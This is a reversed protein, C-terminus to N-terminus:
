RHGGSHLQRHRHAAGRRQGRPFSVPPGPHPLGGPGATRKGSPPSPRSRAGLGYDTDNAQAAIEDLDSFPAAVVVEGFRGQQVLLRSGAVRCQGHNQVAPPRASGTTM